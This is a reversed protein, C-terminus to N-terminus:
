IHILSLQIVGDTEAHVATEMKMAEIVFLRDGKSVRDGAKVPVAVIMGPMPAGIQGPEGEDAKRRAEGAAELSRDAVKVTRPQGNLEFFVTRNGDEDLDGTAQWRIILTKGAEIDVAIERGAEIGYFFVSTPVAAVPGHQRRHRAYDAFVQPYMLWSGLERDSVHRRVQKEAERREADLDAPELVSGPRVTLPKRGKLIKKQLKKPFGSAPQGLNGSFLEYVSEPFDIDRDPNEIDEPTLGGAVMSLALDGVVKSSPTVKVIDGFLRNVEAYARTVEPWHKELGMSRAQERLNTYQGGPMEHLFVDSSGARIDSEFALYHRRM